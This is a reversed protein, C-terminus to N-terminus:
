HLRLLLDQNRTLFPVTIYGKGWTTVPYMQEYLHDCYNCGWVDTCINGSFVAFRKCSGVAIIRTGTLDGPDAKVQYVEGQNLTITFPVGASNGGMTNVSPTIEVQTGNEAAVILLESPLTGTLVATNFAMAYYEIGLTPVPLIVAADSTYEEYNLAYVNVPDNATVHIGKNEIVETATAEALNTPVQVQTTTNATVSFAQSWGALPIEVMGSTNVDSSIYVSLTPGSYNQMFGLWFDQGKTSFTQASCSFQWGFCITFHIILIILIRM